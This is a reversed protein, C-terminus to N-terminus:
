NMRSSNEKSKHRGSSRFRAGDRRHTYELSAYTFPACLQMAYNDHYQERRIRWRWRQQLHCSVPFLPFLFMPLCAAM